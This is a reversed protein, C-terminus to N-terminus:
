SSTFQFIISYLAKDWGFLIGASILIVINLAFIYNWADAGSKESILLAIFETGRSSAGAYLCITISLAM